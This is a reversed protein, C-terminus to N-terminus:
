ANKYTQRSVNDRQNELAQQVFGAQTIQIIGRARNRHVEIMIGLFQFFDGLDSMICNHDEVHIALIFDDSGWLYHVESIL